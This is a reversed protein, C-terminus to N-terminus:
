GHVGGTLGFFRPGSWRAGTIERAISTLSTWTREQFVYGDETVLVAYSQDRWSRVLRTGPRLAMLSQKAEAVPQEMALRTLEREVAPSLGGHRREQLRWAIGRALLDVSFNPASMRYLRRWEARLEPLPMAHLAALKKALNTM